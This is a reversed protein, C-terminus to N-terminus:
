LALYTKTFSTVHEVLHTLNGCLVILLGDAFSDLTGTHGVKSTGLSKKIVSLSSFSTLGSKKCYPLVGSPLDFSADKNKKM